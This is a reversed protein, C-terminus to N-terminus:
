KAKSRSWERITAVEAAPIRLFELFEQHEQPAQKEFESHWREMDDNSFGSAKMIAVWKEKDIVKWRRFSNGNLLKLIARQHSRREEIEADLQAFRKQLISAADSTPRDLITRIDALAIGAKRYVRIRRLRELEREGYRRYSAATRAAPKLLGISEYYLITSRELGCCRAFQSVNWM